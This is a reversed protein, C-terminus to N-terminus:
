KDNVVPRLTDLLPRLKRLLSASGSLTDTPTEDLAALMEDITAQQRTTRAHDLGYSPGADFRWHTVHDNTHGDSDPPCIREGTKCDYWEAKMFAHGVRGHFTRVDFPPTMGYERGDRYTMWDPMMKSSEFWAPGLVAMGRRHAEYEEHPDDFIVKGFDDRPEVVDFYSPAERIHCQCASGDPTVSAFRWDAIGPPCPLSLVRKLWLTLRNIPKM